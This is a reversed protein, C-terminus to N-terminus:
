CTLCIGGSGERIEGIRFAKYNMLGLVHIAQRFEEVGVVVAMGIGMNFTKYMEVEDVNGMDRIIKFISQPHWSAVDIHADVDPPLIRPINEILGGGTIHAIGKVKVEQILKLIGPAYIETPVLLEEGLTGCLGRLRDNPDFDNLEFFVKRVLSYGNSHLGSSRIGLIVDGPRIASGDIIRKRDVVGVVFGALDYEDEELIGPHEATEGGVLACGARKCGRVIGSVIEKVKEPVVKGMALYDLMFLPRAGCTVLDDVCMAVLDIGITDHKGLMQAIKVKTGVGDVSSVLVPEEMGELELRFLSSFGGIGGLVQPGFTSAAVEKILNVASRAAEVDVGADCYTLGEPPCFDRDDGKDRM